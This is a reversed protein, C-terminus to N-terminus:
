LKLAVARACAIGLMAADLIFKQAQARSQNMGRMNVVLLSNLQNSLKILECNTLGSINMTGEVLREAIREASDFQGNIAETITERAKDRLDVPLLELINDIKSM